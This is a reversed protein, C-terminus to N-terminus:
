ERKGEGGALETDMGVFALHQLLECRREVHPGVFRVDEPLERAADRRRHVCVAAVEVEGVHVGVRENSVHLAFIPSRPVSLGEKKGKEKRRKSEVENPNDKKKRKREEKESKRIKRRLKRENGERIKEYEKLPRYKYVCRAGM